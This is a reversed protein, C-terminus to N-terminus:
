YCGYFHQHQPHNSIPNKVTFILISLCTTGDGCTSLVLSLSKVQINRSQWPEIFVLLWSIIDVWKEFFLLFMQSSDPRLKSYTLGNDAKPVKNSLAFWSSQYSILGQQFSCSSKGRDSITLLTGPIFLNFSRQGHNETTRILISITFNPLYAINKRAIVTVFCLWQYYWRWANYFYCYRQDDNAFCLLVCANIRRSGHYLEHFM